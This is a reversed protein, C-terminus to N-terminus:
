EGLPLEEAIEVITEVSDKNLLKKAIIVGAVVGVVIIAGKIITEKDAKIKM